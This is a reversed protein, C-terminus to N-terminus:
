VKKIVTSLDVASDYSALLILERALREVDRGDGGAQKIQDVIKQAAARLEGATLM